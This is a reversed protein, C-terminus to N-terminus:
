DPLIPLEHAPIGLAAAINRLTEQILRVNRPGFRLFQKQAPTLAEVDADWFVYGIGQPEVPVPDSLIPTSLLRVIARELTRDFSTDQNGLELSAEEILPKLTAYLRATGNVDLSAVAAAVPSYRDYSRPDIYGSRSDLDLEMGLTLLFRREPGELKGDALVLDAAVAFAPERLRAPLARAAAAMVEPAGHEEILVRMREIEREVTEGSKRRFRRMSWIIHHARAGEEPSVHDTANMAGILLALLADDVGLRGLSRRGRSVRKVM